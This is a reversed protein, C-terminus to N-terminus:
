MPVVIACVQQLAAMSTDFSGGINANNELLHTAMAVAVSQSVQTGAAGDCFVRSPDRVVAPFQQRATSMAMTGTRTGATTGTSTAVAPLHRAPFNLNDSFWRRTYTWYLVPRPQDGEHALARHLVRYDFALVQTCPLAFVVCVRVCLCLVCVCM